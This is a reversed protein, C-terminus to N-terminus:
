TKSIVTPNTPSLPIGWGGYAADQKDPAVGLILAAAWFTAPNNHVYEALDRGTAVFRVTPDFATPRSPPQGNQVALWEDYNTLFESDRSATRIRAPILQTGHPADKFLFQSLYPGTLTGPPTVYRGTRGSPDSQDVYLAIGRFLTEPTIRGNQRPGNFTSLKNLEEVAALVDANGTDNRFESLPVDRLLSKWYVEVAEGAREAGALDPAPPIAYQTANRGTLSAALSGIPNLQKRKGGLPIAEFDAPDGSRYAKLAAEYAKPDVEGREDHPLGRTDSGIRNAYRDEDGNTPHPPIPVDRDDRAAAVRVEHVRDRFAEDASSAQAPAPATAGAGGGTPDPLGVLTLAAAGGAAGLFRRRGENLRVKERTVRAPPRQPGRSAGGEEISTTM